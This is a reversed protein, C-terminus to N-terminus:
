KKQLIEKVIEKENWPIQGSKVWMTTDSGKGCLIVIDGPKAEQVIFKIADKRESIRKAKCLSQDIGAWVEDIIKEPDETYPDENTVVVVDALRSCIEGVLPRKEKMRDGCSGTLVLLRNGEQLMGKATKLTAEYSAPTVTFDVFLSFNQGADIREMRGPVGHFKALAAIATDLSVEAMHVSSIACLANAINFTGAMPLVLDPIGEEANCLIKARTESVSSQIDTAWIACEHNNSAPGFPRKISYEVTWATKIGKYLSFTRDDANLVKCGTKKRLMRFLKSKARAYEDMTVHYDLHEESLNTIGAVRPWTFSLRGQDLGHSSYELVAYDCGATVLRRLFKQIMFPSPSTKQTPNPERVGNIVFAATTLSGVKKGAHQLIHTVMSTTTTKGDTGTIGIVFLKRAPFGYRAAAVFAKFRHWLLRVPHRPHIAKKLSSIASM